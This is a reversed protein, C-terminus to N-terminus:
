GAAVAAVTLLGFIVALVAVRLWHLRDWRGALERSVEGSARWAAIRNNIPELTTVTLLIVGVMLAAALGCLWSRTSGWASVLVVLTASYWVMMVKGLVRSTHSRASGFADDPLGALSPHAFAAVAFEVGVMLGTILVALADITEKM